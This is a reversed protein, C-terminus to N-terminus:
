RQRRKDTPHLAPSRFKYTSLPLRLLVRWIGGDSDTLPSTYAVGFNEIGCLRWVMLALGAAVGFLGAFTALGVLAFRGLRLAAALDQSPLTYGSIGALAVVIIAIPSLVRAEVASQGVILAGIISVTQGVPDPLRLGAEQLLEFAVLMTLVETAVNFPVRQKAQVMSLLLKTPLMEQHYMAVAVLLAPLLLTFLLALWRLLSLATAVMYHQAADEPVRMFAALTAPLLFGLPLGDALLGVCGDLLAAAFKDPRETSLLQPFPTNKHDVVYQELDGATLLGDIDIGDLRRLLEAVTDPNALREVYMLAVPTGSKRGVVTQILKLEPSRLKRRVLSTNVRLTEVFADKAGKVSKETTPEAVSRSSKTRVEFTVAASESDVIVACSGQTLDAAVEDLTDRRRVSYSYVTGGLLLEILAAGDAVDKQRFPDTLPELVDNAIDTGSVVGDLWCVFVPLSKDPTAFVERFDFDGCDEFVAQM